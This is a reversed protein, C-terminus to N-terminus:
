HYFRGALVPSTLSVPEIGQNPLSGPPPCPLGSWYEQRSFRMSLPAPHGTTWLTACLRVRSFYSPACARLWDSCTRLVVMRGRKTETGAPWGVAVHQNKEGPCQLFATTKGASLSGSKKLM